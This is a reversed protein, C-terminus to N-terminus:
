DDPNGELLIFVPADKSYEGDKAHLDLYYAINFFLSGRRNFAITKKGPDFFLHFCDERVNYVKALRQLLGAFLHIDLEREALMADFKEKEHPVYFTELGWPPSSSYSRLDQEATSDCYSQPADNILSSTAPSFLSNEKFPRVARIAQELQNNISSQSAPFHPTNQTQAQPILQNHTQPPREPISPNPLGLANKISNMFRLPHRDPFLPPIPQTPPQSPTRPTLAQGQPTPPPPTYPPPGGNVETPDDQWSGPIKGKQGEKWTQPDIHGNAKTDRAGTPLGLGSNVGMERALTEEAKIKELRAKEEKRRQQEEAEKKAKALRQEELHRNLLRDVAFGRFRLFELNEKLITEFMLDTGRNSKTLLVSNLAEAVQNFNVKTPDTVLLLCGKASTDVIATVRETDRARIRGFILIREVVLSEYAYIRLNEGLNAASSKRVHAAIEPLTLFIGARELIHKRLTETAANTTPNGGQTSKQRVLSSLNPAGLAIYLTECDDREPAVILKERFIVGLRPEDVIVIDEARALTAITKRNSDEVVSTELGLLFAAQRLRTWLAKDRQLQTVNTGLQGLLRLYGQIDMAQYIRKPERALQDAIQTADPRDKVGLAELFINAKEGFDVFDFIEEWVSEKEEHTDLFCLSPSVHTVVGNRTVPVIKARSLSLLQSKTFSAVRQAAYAFKERAEIVTAPPSKTLAREVAVPTPDTTVGFKTADPILRKDLIYFGLVQCTPNSYIDSPNCLYVKGNVPESPLFAVTLQSM